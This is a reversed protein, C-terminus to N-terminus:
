LHQMHLPLEQGKSGMNQFMDPVNGGTCYHAVRRYREKKLVAVEPIRM